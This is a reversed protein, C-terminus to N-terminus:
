FLYAHSLRSARRSEMVFATRKNAISIAATTSLSLRATHLQLLYLSTEM